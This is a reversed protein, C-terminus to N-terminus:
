AKNGNRRCYRECSEAEAAEKKVLEVQLAELKEALLLLSFTKLMVYRISCNQPSTPSLNLGLDAFGKKECTRIKGDGCKFLTEYMDNSVM